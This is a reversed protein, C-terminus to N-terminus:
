AIVTMLEMGLKVSKGIKWKGSGMHLHRIQHHLSLSETISSIPCFRFGTRMYFREFEGGGILFCALIEERNYITIAKHARSM